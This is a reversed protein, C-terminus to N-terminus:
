RQRNTLQRVKHSLHYLVLEPSRNQTRLTQDTNTPVVIELFQKFMAIPSSELDLFRSKQM